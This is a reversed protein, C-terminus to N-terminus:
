KEVIIRPLTHSLSLVPHIPMDFDSVMRDYANRADVQDSFVVVEDGAEASSASLDIMAHNMSPAGLVPAYGDKVKVVNNNSPVPYLGEYKGFPIIGVRTLQPAVFARSYGAAEGAQLHQIKTITTIARMALRRERLVPWLPHDRPFPNVGYLGKGIRLCDTYSSQHSSLCGATGALHILSPQAGLAHVMEVCVKFQRIAAQLSTTDYADAEAFHSMVGELTLQPWGLIDQVLQGLESPDAGYRNMGTNCELHVKIPRGTQALATIMARDHVVFAFNDLQLRGIDTPPHGGMILVPQSSVRRVRLAEEYEMVAIYPFTRARLIDAVAELGHGYANGKLVPMLPQGTLRKILDFNHLIASRSIELRSWQTKPSM